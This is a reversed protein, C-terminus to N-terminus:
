REKETSDTAATFGGGAVLVQGNALRTATHDARGVQMSGTPSWTGSQAQVQAADAGFLLLLLLLINPLIRPVVAAHEIIGRQVIALRRARRLLGTGLATSM